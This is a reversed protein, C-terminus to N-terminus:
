FGFELSFLQTNDLDGMRTYAYDLTLSRGFVPLKLGVGGALGDAFTWPAQAENFFRKGGRLFIREQFAYEVGLSPQMSTDVGDLVQGFLQVHHLPDARFLATPPGLLATRASLQLTTPLPMRHTSHRVTQNGAAPFVERAEPIHASILGGEFRGETGLNAIAAGLTIGYIGVDFMTGIDFGLYTARALDIGEQIYGAAFGVSLRDTVRRAGHVGIATGSWEVLAGASPDNGEPYWETTREVAGSTFHSVSVGLAGEGLPLGIGAFTHRLGSDGYLDASSVGLAPSTIDVLSATNWYLSALGGQLAAGTGGLAMARAGV